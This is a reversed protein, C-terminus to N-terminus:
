GQVVRVQDTSELVTGHGPPPSLVGPGSGQPPSLVKQEERTYGQIARVQDTSELVPGHGPPPSLIEQRRHLHPHRHHARAPREQPDLFGTCNQNICQNRATALAM